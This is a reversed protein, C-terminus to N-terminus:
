AVAQGERLLNILKEGEIPDAYVKEFKGSRV